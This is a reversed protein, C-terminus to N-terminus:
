KKVNDKILNYTINYYLLILALIFLLIFSLEKIIGVGMYLFINDRLSYLVTTSLFIVGIIALSIPSLFSFNLQKKLITNIENKNLGLNYLTAYRKKNAISDEIELVGIITFSIIFLVIALYYMFISISFNVMKISNTEITKIRIKRSYDTDKDFDTYYRYFNDELVSLKDIAIKDDFFDIYLQNQVFTLNKLYEDNLIIFYDNHTPYIYESFHDTYIKDLTFSNYDTEIGSKLKSEINKLDALKNAQIAYDKNNLNIKEYGNMGRIANYQSLSMALVPFNYKNRNTFDKERLLYFDIPTYEKVKINNKDLYNFVSDYNDYKIDNINITDKYSSFIIIDNSMRSNLLGTSWSKLVPEFLFLMIAIFISISIFGFAIKQRNIKSIKQGRLFIKQATSEKSGIIRNEFLYFFVLFLYIEFIIGIMIYYNMKELGSPLKYNIFLIPSIFFIIMQIFGLISIYKTKSYLSKKKFINYFYGLVLIIPLIFISIYFIRPMLPLRNDYYLKLNIYNENILIINVIIFILNLRKIVKNDASINISEEYNIMDIIKLKKIKRINLIGNFLFILIFFVITYLITDPYLKFSFSEVGDFTNLLKLNIFQSLFTGLVIGLLVSIIGMISTELFFLLAIKEKKMGMLTQLSFEKFKKIMLFNNIYNVLFLIILSIATLAYKISDGLISIDFEISINPSYYKSTITLFSYYMAVSIILTFIYIIYNKSSKKINNILLKNYM